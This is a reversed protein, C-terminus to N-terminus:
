KGQLTFFMDVMEAIDNKAYICVDVGFEDWMYKSISKFQDENGAVVWCEDEDILWLVKCGNIIQFSADNYGMYFMGGDFSNNGRYGILSM